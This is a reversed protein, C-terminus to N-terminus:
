PLQVPLPVFHRVHEPVDNLPEGEYEVWAHAALPHAQVGQCYKVAIGQRRLLYYLVLSQELCLARGPYLAGALAVGYETARVAENDVFGTPPVREVGRRICRLTRGFGLIKLGAKAACILLGCRLVSSADVSYPAASQSVVTGVAEPSM